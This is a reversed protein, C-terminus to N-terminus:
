HRSSEPRLHGTLDFDTVELTRRRLCILNLISRRTANLTRWSGIGDLERDLESRRHEGARRKRRVHVVARKQRLFLRACCYSRRQSLTLCSARRRLKRRISQDAAYGVFQDGDSSHVAVGPFSEQFAGDATEFRLTGGTVRLLPLCDDSFELYSAAEAEGSISLTLTTDILPSTGDHTYWSLAALQPSRLSDFATRAVGAATVDDLGVPRESIPRCGGPIDPRGETGSQGGICATAGLACGLIWVLRESFM